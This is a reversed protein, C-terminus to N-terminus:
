CTTYVGMNGMETASVGVQTWIPVPHGICGAEPAPFFGLDLIHFPWCPGHTCALFPHWQMITVNLPPRSPSHLGSFDWHISRLATHSTKWMTSSLFTCLNKPLPWHGWWKILPRSHFLSFPQLYASATPRCCSSKTKCTSIQWFADVISSVNSWWTSLNVWNTSMLWGEGHTVGSSASQVCAQRTCDRLCLQM